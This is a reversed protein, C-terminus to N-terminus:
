ALRYGSLLRYIIYHSSLQDYFQCASFSLTPFLYQNFYVSCLKFKVLVSPLIIKFAPDQHCIYGICAKKLSASHKTKNSLPNSQWSNKFLNICRHSYKGLAGYGSTKGFNFSLISQGRGQEAKLISANSSYPPIFSSHVGCAPLIKQKSPLWFEKNWSRTGATESPLQLCIQVSMGELSPRSFSFCTIQSPICNIM